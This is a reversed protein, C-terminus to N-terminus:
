CQFLTRYMNFNHEFLLEWFKEKFVEAASANALKVVFITNGLATANRAVGLAIVLNKKIEM